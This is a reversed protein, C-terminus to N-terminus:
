FIFDFVVIVFVNFICLVGYCMCWLWVCYFWNSIGSALLFGCYYYDVLLVYTSWWVFFGSPQPHTCSLQRKYVDLHTYSVAWSLNFYLSFGALTTSPCMAIALGTDVLLPGRIHLLLIYNSIVRQYINAKKM